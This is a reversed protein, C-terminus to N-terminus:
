QLPTPYLLGGHNWLANLGRPLKLPSAEGLTRTYIEAYSGTTALVNAPWDPALGFPTSLEHSQGLLRQMQPDSKPTGALEEAELLISITANLLNTFTLDDSRSAMALPDLAIAQPLIAYERARSAFAVRTNALRTLDGSLAACNNTVFAAEMEGEEQFPFPLIALNQRDFWTHLHLEAETGTLFCIKNHVLDEPKTIGSSKLVLFGQADILVPRSLTIGPATAHTFDDSITPILDVEHARLAALATDNDPFGRVATRAHPGLIAAAVARCLDQDFAVRPGHQDTINYEAESQNIGCTLANAKRIATITPSTPPTAMSRQPEWEDCLARHIPCPLTGTVFLLLLLVQFLNM